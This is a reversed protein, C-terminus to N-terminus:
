NRGLGNKSEGFAKNMNGEKALLCSSEPHHRKQGVQQCIGCVRPVAVVSRYIHCQPAIHERSGCLTCSRQEETFPCSDHIHGKCLCICCTPITPKYPNFLKSNNNYPRNFNRQMHRSDYQNAVNYSLVPNQSKTELGMNKFGNELNGIKANERETGTIKNVVNEERKKRKRVVLMEGINKDMDGLLKMLDQTNPIFEPNYQQVNLVRQTLTPQIQIPLCTLIKHYISKRDINTNHSLTNIKFILSHLSTTFPDNNPNYGWFAECRSALDTRKGLIQVILAQLDIPMIDNSDQGELSSIIKEREEKKFMSLLLTNYESPELAGAICTISQSIQRLYTLICNKPDYEIGMLSKLKHIKNLTTTLRQDGNEKRKKLIPPPVQELLNLPDSMFSPTLKSSELKTIRELIENLSTNQPQESIKNTYTKKYEAYNGGRQSIGDEDNDTSSSDINDYHDTDSNKNVNSNQRVKSYPYPHYRSRTKSSKTMRSNHKKKLDKEEFQGEHNFLENAISNSINLNPDTRMRAPILGSLTRGLSLSRSRIRAM